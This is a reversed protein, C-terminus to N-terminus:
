QNLGLDSLLNKKSKPIQRVLYTNYNRIDEYYKYSDADPYIFIVSGKSKFVFSNINEGQQWGISKLWDNM